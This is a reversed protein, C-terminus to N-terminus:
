TPSMQVAHNHWGRSEGLSYRFDVAMRENWLLYPRHETHQDDFVILICGSGGGHQQSELSAM